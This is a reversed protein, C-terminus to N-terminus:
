GTAWTGDNIQLEKAVQAIPLDNQVVMQAADAKFQPGSNAVHHHQWPISETRYDVVQEVDKICGWVETDAV